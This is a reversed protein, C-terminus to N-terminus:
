KSDVLNEYEGLDVLWNHQSRRSWQEFVVEMYIEFDEKSCNNVRAFHEIVKKYNLKGESALVGTLGIHKVYHCMDCLAIFGALKQIYKEDDYEWIEHCNMRGEAGCIGCRYKYDAYTKKRVKDWETKSLVKRLNDCWSSSPVLEIKLKIEMNKSKIKM